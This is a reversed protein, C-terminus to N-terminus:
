VSAKFDIYFSLLLETENENGIIMIKIMLTRKKYTDKNEQNSTKIKIPKQNKLDVVDLYVWLVEEMEMKNNIRNSKLGM